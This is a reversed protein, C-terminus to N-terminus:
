ITELIRYIIDAQKKWDRDSLEYKCKLGHELRLKYDNYYKSINQSYEKYDCIYQKGSVYEIKQSNYYSVKPEVILSNNVNFHNKFGGINPVIQPVGIYAQEFNCLGFGEGDCTNIGVDATNYLINMENDTINRKIFYINENYKVNQQICELNAIDLINHYGDNDEFLLLASNDIASPNEKLFKIYAMVTIDLRKRPQNRNLNTIIFSREIGFYKRAFSKSLTHYINNNIAHECIQINTTMGQQKLITKWYETFVIVCDAHFDISKMLPHNQFPYVTDVYCILKFTKINIIKQIYLQIMYMDNYILVVDPKLEFLYDNILDLGYGKKEMDYNEKEFVDIIKSNLLKRYKTNQNNQINQCGWIHIDLDNNSELHYLLEYMVKAYGNYQSPHTGIFVVKM